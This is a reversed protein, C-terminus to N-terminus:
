KRYLLSIQFQNVHNQLSNFYNFNIICSKYVNYGAGIMYQNGNFGLGAIYQKYQGTLNFNIYKNLFKNDPNTSTLPLVAEISTNLVLNIFQAKYGILHYSYLTTRYYHKIPEKSISSSFYFDNITILNSITLKHNNLNSIKNPFFRIEPDNTSLLENKFHKSTIYYSGSCIWKVKKDVVKIAVIGSYKSTITNIQRDNNFLVGFSFTNLSYGFEANYENLHPLNKSISTNTYNVKSYWKSFAIHGPHEYTRTHQLENIVNPISDNADTHLTIFVSILLSIILFMTKM